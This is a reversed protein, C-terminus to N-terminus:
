RREMLAELAELGSKSLPVELTRGDPSRLTCNHRQQDLRYLKGTNVITSRDVRAFVAPLRGELSLLNELILDEGGFGILTSYNGAAKFGAIEDPAAFLIGSGSRFRLKEPSTVMEARAKDVVKAVARALEGKAIPKLLYDVASLKIASMLYNRDTYATTFIVYPLQITKQLEELLQISDRGQLQIDLFLLSPRHRFIAERASEYSDCADVVELQERYDELKTLLSLRPLREDEVVITKLKDM